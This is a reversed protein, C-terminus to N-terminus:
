KQVVRELTEPEVPKELMEAGPLTSSPISYGSLLVVGIQPQIARLQRALEVGNVDPLGVDTIVLQFKERQACALAEAGSAAAVVTHGACELLERTLDRNDLDDEVLLLRANSSDSAM